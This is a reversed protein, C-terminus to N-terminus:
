RGLGELEKRVNAAFDRRGKEAAPTASPRAAMYRTGYELYVPYPPNTLSTGVVSVGPEPEEDTHISRRYTGTKVPARAKWDAEIGRATKIRARRVARRVEPGLTDLLNKSVTVTLRM